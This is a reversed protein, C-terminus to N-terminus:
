KGLSEAADEVVPIKWTVFAILEDLHVPIWFYANTCMSIRNGTKNYCGDEYIVLNKLFLLGSKSFGMTDLDVDLFYPKCKSIANATAVFLAQTLVEDGAVGV